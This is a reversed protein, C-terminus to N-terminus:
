YKRRTFMRRSIDSTAKKRFTSGRKSKKHRAILSALPQFWHATFTVGLRL